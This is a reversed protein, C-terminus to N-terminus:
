SRSTGDASVQITCFPAQQAEALQAALSRVRKHQGALVRSEQQVAALQSSCVGTTGAGARCRQRAARGCM